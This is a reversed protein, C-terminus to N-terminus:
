IPRLPLLGSLCVPLGSHCALLWQLLIYIVVVIVVVVVVVVGVPIVVVIICNNEISESM